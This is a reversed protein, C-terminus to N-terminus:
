QNVSYSCMHYRNNRATAPRSQPLLTYDHEPPSGGPEATAASRTPHGAPDVIVQGRSSIVPTAAAALYSGDSAGGGSFLLDETTTTKRRAKVTVATTM